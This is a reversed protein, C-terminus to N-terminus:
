GAAAVAELVAARFREPPELRARLLRLLPALAIDRAALSPSTGRSRGTTPSM